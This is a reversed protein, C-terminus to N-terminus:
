QKPQTNEKIAKLLEVAENIKWYWCILERCIFFIGVVLVLAVVVAAVSGM